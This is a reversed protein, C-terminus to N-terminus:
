VRRGGVVGTVEHVSVEGTSNTMELKNNMGIRINENIRKSIKM